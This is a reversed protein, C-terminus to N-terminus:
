VLSALNGLLLEALRRQRPADERRRLLTLLVLTPRGRSGCAHSALSRGRYLLLSGGAPAAVGRSLQGAAAQRVIEDAEQASAREGMGFAMRGVRGMTTPRHIRSDNDSKARCYQAYLRSLPDAAAAGWHRDADPRPVAPPATCESGDLGLGYPRPPLRFPLRIAHLDLSPGGSARAGGAASAQPLLLVGASTM